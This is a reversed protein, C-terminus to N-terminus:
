GTVGLEIVFLDGAYPQELRESETLGETASTIFLHRLDQGGFTISTPRQVPMSIESLVEGAPNLQLVQWGDWIATWINGESDITLGDPTGKKPRFFTQRNSLTTTQFDIDYRYIANDGSDTHYFVGKDVSWDLGNSITLDSIKEILKNEQVMWLKSSGKPGKSGIWFRGLPDVKGDNFMSEIHSHKIPLWERKCGSDPSWYSLGSETALIFGRTEHMAICGVKVGVQYTEINKSESKYSHILGSEIDVWFLANRRYDWLPSEGLTDKCSVIPTSIELTRM